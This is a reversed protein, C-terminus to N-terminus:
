VRVSGRPEFVTKWPSKRLEQTTWTPSAYMSFIFSFFASAASTIIDTIMFHVIAIGIILYVFGIAIM